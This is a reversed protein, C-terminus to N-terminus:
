TDDGGGHDEFAVSKIHGEVYIEEPLVNRLKLGTGRIVLEGESVNICVLESTYKLIGRHNEVILQLSGLMVIKPLDLIVNGPIELFGSMQQKIRKQFDKMAM